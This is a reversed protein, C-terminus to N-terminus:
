WEPLLYEILSQDNMVRLCNKLGVDWVRLGVRLAVWVIGHTGLCALEIELRPRTSTMKM